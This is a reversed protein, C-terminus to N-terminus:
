KTKIADNSIQHLFLVVFTDVEIEKGSLSFYKKREEKSDEYLSVCTLVKGTFHCSLTPKSFQKLLNKVTLNVERENVNDM